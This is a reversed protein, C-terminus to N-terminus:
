IYYILGCLPCQYLKDICEFCFHHHNCPIVIINAKNEFCIICDDFHINDLIPHKSQNNIINYKAIYVNDNIRFSINIKYPFVLFYLKYMLFYYFCLAFCFFSFKLNESLSLQVIYKLTQHLSYTFFLFAHLSVIGVILRKIPYTM